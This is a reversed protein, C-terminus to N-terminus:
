VADVDACRGTMTRVNKRQEEADKKQAEEAGAQLEPKSGVL